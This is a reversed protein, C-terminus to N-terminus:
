RLSSSATSNLALTINHQANPLLLMSDAITFESHARPPAALAWNCLLLYVALALVHMVVTEQHFSM